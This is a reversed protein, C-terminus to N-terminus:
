RNQEIKVTYPANAEINVLYEGTEGIEIEKSGDFSEKTDLLSGLNKGTKDLLSVSFRGGGKYTMVFFATGKQLKVLQVVSRGTAGIINLPMSTASAATSPASPTPTSTPTPTIAPATNVAAPTEPQGGTNKNEGSKCAVVMILISACAVAALLKTIMWKQKM